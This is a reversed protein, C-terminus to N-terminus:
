FTYGISFHIRSSSEGERRDLKWGYLLGVPGIPTIYRLGLGVSDRFSDSGAKDMTNRVAGIDYFGALEFNGGLDIRAELTGMLSKRGGVADGKDDFCLMNEKFGRVSSTGGLYFLQDDPVNGSTNLPDIYGLRGLWAFTLRDLPTWYYRLDFRYKLFHDLDDSLGQSIDVYFQSFVGKRPRIFSDRTDYTVTPTTVLIERPRYQDRDDGSVPDGSGTSTRAFQDRNEYRFNIGTTLNVPWKRYFGLSAGYTKTGFAQNFEERKEAFLGFSSSIRSGLLRPEVIRSEVRYGIQSTEGGVWADKNTGFLNHDGAKTNAFLGRESDFGAGLEWFYPKKEEVEIFLDIRERQEKLGPSRVRVNKFVNMNRLNRQGDLMRKLSFPEGTQMELENQLIRERTRFNGAYYAQGMEAYPGEVVHYTVRAGSEDDALSFGGKVEVYPYGKEAIAASLANEDSQIMYEKFPLGEKLRITGHSEDESIVTAGDIKVSSVLTQIGEQIEVTVTVRKKDDSWTVAKNVVTRMYGHKLYLSKIYNLDDDLVEPIFVGKELLGPSRTLMQDRIEEEDLAQNGTIQIAEVTTRPGEDVIIRVSRIDDGQGSAAEEVKVQTDLYGATRYRERIKRLSRRLRLDKSKGDQLLVLDRRLTRDRFAENGVFEFEYRPGEEIAIFVDVKNEGPNKELKFDLVAEPYGKKWYYKSLNEVDNKLHDEAFRGASGPLSSVRWVKMKWKLRSASFARNGSLDLRELKLYEGKRINVHLDYHGYDPDEVATVTVEPHTFGEKRFLEKIAEEEKPLASEVFPNGPYVTMVNRVESEFLPYAGSVGINKVLRFPTLQFELSMGADQEKSDVHIKQFRNCLKLADLSARLQDPSFRDGKRVSILRRAMEIYTSEDWPFDIVAIDVRSVVPAPKFPKDAHGQETEALCPKAAPAM